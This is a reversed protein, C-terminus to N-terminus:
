REVAHREPLGRQRQGRLQLAAGLSGPNGRREGAQVALRVSVDTRLQEKHDRLREPCAEIRLCLQPGSGASVAALHQGPLPRAAGLRSRGPSVPVPATGSLMASAQESHIRGAHSWSLLVQAASLTGMGPEGAILGPAM